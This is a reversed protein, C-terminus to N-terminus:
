RRVYALSRAFDFRIEGSALGPARVSERHLRHVVVTGSKDFLSAPLSAHALGGEIAGDGLTCRIAAPQVDVYLIDGTGDPTWSVDLAAGNSVGVGGSQEGQLRVDNPDGPANATVDYAPAGARGGIRLRYRTAAPLLTPDGARAYVVGTVVDTVDPLQRPVLRTEVGDAEVSVSGVDVLEVVPTAEEAASAGRPVAESACTDRAPLGMTAGIARLAEDATSSSAFRVFRASAEARPSSTADVTREVVIIASTTTAEADGASGAGSVTGACGLAFAPYLALPWRPLRM